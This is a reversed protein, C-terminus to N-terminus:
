KKYFTHNGIKATKKMGKAWYPIGYREIFEYHTAGNSIDKGNEEFVKEVIEKAQIESKKGERAVFNDLDKRKLAVCGLPLGANIRNRYVCTVAYMGNYGEGIAEGIVGKWLDPPAKIDALCFTNSSLILFLLIIKHLCKAM